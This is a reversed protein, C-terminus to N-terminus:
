SDRFFDVYVLLATSLICSALLFYFKRRVNLAKMLESQENVIKEYDRCKRELKAYRQSLEEIKEKLSENKQLLSSM